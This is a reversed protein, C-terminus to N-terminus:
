GNLVKRALDAAARGAKECQVLRTSARGTRLILSISPESEYGALAKECEVLADKAADLAEVTARLRENSRRRPVPGTCDDLTYPATM